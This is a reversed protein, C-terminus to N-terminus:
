FLSMNMVKRVEDLTTVADERAREIGKKLVTKIYEPNQKLERRKSRIPKLYENLSETVYKKLTGAGNNGIEEAIELPTKGTSLAAIRLLNAVEQRNDPDYTICREADTKARKILKATKM